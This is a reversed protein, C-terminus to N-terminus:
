RSVGVILERNGQRFHAVRNKADAKDLLWQGIQDGVQLRVVEDGKVLTVLLIGGWNEIGFLTHGDVLISQEVKPGQTAKSASAQRARQAAVQNTLTTVKSELASIKQNYGDFGSQTNEALSRTQRSWTLSLETDASMRETVSKLDHLQQTIVMLESKINDIGESQESAQSTLQKINVANSEEIRDMRAVVESRLDHVMTEEGYQRKVEFLTYASMGVAALGLVLSAIVSVNFGGSALGREQASAHDKNENSLKQKDHPAEDNTSNNVADLVEDEASAKPKAKGFGLLGSLFPKEIKKRQSGDEDPTNGPVSIIPDNDEDVSIKVEDDHEDVPIEDPENMTVKPDDIDDVDSSLHEHEEVSVAQGDVLWTDREEDGISFMALEFPDHLIEEADDFDQDTLAQHDEETEVEGDQLLELDVMDSSGHDDDLLAESNEHQEDLVVSEEDVEENAVTETQAEDHDAVPEEQGGSPMISALFDDAESTKKGLLDNM